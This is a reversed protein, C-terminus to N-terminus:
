QSQNKGIARRVALQVIATLRHMMEFFSALMVGVFPTVVDIPAGLHLGRTWLYAGFFITTLVLGAVLILFAHVFARSAARIGHAEHGSGPFFGNLLFVIVFGILLFPLEHGISAILGPAPYPPAIAFQRIENLILEAGSVSGVASWTRDRASTRSDGIVVVAGELARPMTEPVPDADPVYHTYNLSEWIVTSTRPTGPAVPAFTFARQTERYEGSCDAPSLNGCRGIGAQGRIARDVLQWPSEAPSTAVLAGARALSPIAASYDGESSTIRFEPSMLRADGGTIRNVSPFYRASPFACARPDCLFHAPDYTLSLAGDPAVHVQDSAPSWALLVPPGPRSLQAILAADEQSSAPETFVDFVIVRPNRSRIHELLAALAARDTRPRAPPCLSGGDESGCFRGGLDVFIWGTPLYQGDGHPDTGLAGGEASTALLVKQSIDPGFQAIPTSYVLLSVMLAVFLGVAAEELGIRWQFRLRTVRIEGL